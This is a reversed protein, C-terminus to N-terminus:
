STAGAARQELQELRAQLRDTDDRLREVDQMWVEVDGARALDESEERLYEAGSYSLAQASRRGWGFLNRAGQMLRHAAVDGLAKAMWEEPDFGVDALIGAFTQLLETDGEVELERPLGREGGAMNLALGLLRAAPARATVDATLDDDSAVRVGSAGPEILFRWGLDTAQLALRRGELAACRSLASPELRLVRNLAIELTACLLTPTSPRNVTVKTVANRTWFQADALRSGGPITTRNGLNAVGRPAIRAAVGFLGSDNKLM